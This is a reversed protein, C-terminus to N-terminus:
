YKEDMLHIKYFVKHSSYSIKEVLSTHSMYSIYETLPYVCINKEIMWLIQKNHYRQNNEEMLIIKHEMNCM